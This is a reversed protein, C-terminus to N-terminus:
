GETSSQPPNVFGFYKRTELSLLYSLVMFSIVLGILSEPIIWLTEKFAGFFLATLLITIQVLIGSASFIFAPIWGWKKGHYLGYAVLFQSAIGLAFTGVFIILLLWKELSFSLLFPYLVSIPLALTTLLGVIVYLVSLVLVGFPRESQLKEMPLAAKWNSNMESLVLVAFGFIMKGFSTFPLRYAISLLAGLATGAFQSEQLPAGCLGGFWFGLLSGFILSILISAIRPLVKGGCMRYLVIFFLIPNVIYYLFSFMMSILSMELMTYGMRFLTISLYSSLLFQFGEVFSFVFTVAFVKSDFLEVGFDTHVLGDV